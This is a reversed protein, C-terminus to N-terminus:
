SAWRQSEQSTASCLQDDPSFPTPRVLEDAREMVAAHLKRTAALRTQPITRTQAYRGWAPRPTPSASCPSRDPRTSAMSHHRSAQTLAAPWQTRLITSGSVSMARTQRLCRSKLILASSKISFFRRSAFTATMRISALKSTPSIGRWASAVRSSPTRQVMPRFSVASSRSFTLRWARNLGM